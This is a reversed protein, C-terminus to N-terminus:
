LDDGEMISSPSANSSTGVDSQPARRLLEAAVQAANTDGALAGAVVARCREMTRHATSRSLGLDAAVQRIPVSGDLYPVLLREAPSLQDWLAGCSEIIEPDPAVTAPTATIEDLPVDGTQFIVPFRAEVVELLTAMDLPARAVELSRTVVEALSEPPIMSQGRRPEAVIRAARLNSLQFAAEVLVTTPPPVGDADGAAAMWLAGAGAGGLRVVDTAKELQHQIARAVRGRVTQRAQDSLYNRVTRELLRRLSSDDTALLMLKTFKVQGDDALFEHAADQVADDTWAGHQEPPPFRNLRAVAAVTTYLLEASAPGFRGAKLEDYAAM